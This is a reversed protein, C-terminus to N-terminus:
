SGESVAPLWITFTSGEGPTSEVEIDGGHLRIVERAIALGIGVGQQELRDRGIQRFREFLHPIEEPPIGIGRDIVSVEVRGDAVRARVTVRREDRLSFKIGNDILRGLADVFLTECILVPPLDPAVQVELAVGREAAQLAHQWVTREVVNGLDDHVTALDRFEKATRGTDLRILLLLDNVLRTLRDAGRKIGALFEQLEEASLNELDELALEAYGTVYTLPMRLEHGLVTTIQQKLEDFETETVQRIERTRALRSQVVVILEQPDFPKTIYDEVGLAKGKLIDEREAKATLFIFPITVWEQRARVAEYLAYGDMRPMMIDALVLDPRFMEMARLAEEGDNATLVEFGEGELIKKLAQQMPKHDEAVLIRPKGM